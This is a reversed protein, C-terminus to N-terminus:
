MYGGAGGSHSFCSFLSTTPTLSSGAYSVYQFTDLPIRNVPIGDKLLTSLLVWIHCTLMNSAAASLGSGGAAKSMRCPLAEEFGSDLAITLEAFPFYFQM